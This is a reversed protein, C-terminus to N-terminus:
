LVQGFVEGYSQGDVRMFFWAYARIAIVKIVLHEVPDM